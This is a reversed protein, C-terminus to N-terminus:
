RRLACSSWTMKYTVGVVRNVFASYANQRQLIKLCRCNLELYGMILAYMILVYLM